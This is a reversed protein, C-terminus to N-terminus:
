LDLGFIYSLRQVGVGFAFTQIAAATGPLTYDNPWNGGAPVIVQELFSGAADLVNVTYSTDPDLLTPSMAVRLTKSFNPIAFNNASSINTGPPAYVGQDAIITRTARSPLFADMAISGTVTFPTVTPLALYISEDIIDVRVSQGVVMISTGQTVDVDATEDGGLSGWLLRATVQMRDTFVLAAPNFKIGLQVGWSKPPESEDAACIQGGGQSGANRYVGTESGDSVTGLLVNIVNQPIITMAADSQLTGQGVPWPLQFGYKQRKLRPM